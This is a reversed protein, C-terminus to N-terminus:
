SNANYSAGRLSAATGMHHHIEASIGLAKAIRKWDVGHGSDGFWRYALIHAVEHPLTKELTEQTSAESYLPSLVVTNNQLDAFGAANGKDLFRLEIHIQRYEPFKRFGEAVYDQMRSFAAEKFRAIRLAREEAEALKTQMEAKKGKFWEAKEEITDGKVKQSLIGKELTEPECIMYLLKKARTAATYLLERQNM